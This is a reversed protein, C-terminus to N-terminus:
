LGTWYYLMISFDVVNVIGNTNVDARPNGPETSLWWFLLISFDVLNVFGDCNLDGPLAGACADFPATTEHVDLAVSKSYESILGNPATARARIQYMGPPLDSGATLALNWRGSEDSSVEFIETSDSTATITVQSNPATTGRLTVSEGLELNSADSEITPGLFIGSVSTTTGSSVSVSINFVPGARGEDDIGFISFTYTGPDISFTADFAADVGAQVTAFFVGNRSFSLEANPYALGQFQVITQSEEPPPPSPVTASVSVQLQDEVTASQLPAARALLVFFAGVILYARKKGTTM